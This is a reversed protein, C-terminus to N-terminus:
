CLFLKLTNQEPKSTWNFIELKFIELSLTEVIERPLKNWHQVERMIVIKKRTELCFKGQQLKQNSSIISENYVDAETKETFM